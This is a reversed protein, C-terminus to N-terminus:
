VKFQKILIELQAALDALSRSSDQIQSSGKGVQSSKQHIDGIDRTIDAVVVSSQAVNSNVESIGQSAQSINNAIESTAASQEEVATAIGNIVSNIEAIVESIKEINIVTTATTRQMDNIQNKIDVTAAATQKALEKIENAVVAFGKGAEGARAAEITANLALLNTQESIETITETVKSVKKATEGLAAIEESTQTSQNVARESIARAKEANQAIENITATMEETASAVTNVNSSSQEMAASVSQFNATMEEAAASVSSSRDSTDNAAGSLQQSVSSLDKSSETLKVVGTVVNNIMSGVQLVMKNLSEAMMGIEDKRDSDFKVRFDGQSLTEILASSKKLPVTISRVIYISLLVSLVVATILLGSVVRLVWNATNGAEQGADNALKTQFAVLEDLTDFYVSQIKRYEGMLIEKAKVNENKGVLELMADLNKGFVPRIESIIKKVLASGVDNQANKSLEELIGGATKRADAIRKKEVERSQQNEDLLLNRTARAVINIQDKIANAHKVKTMREQVLVELEDHINNVSSISYLGVIFLFALAVASNIALRTGIKLNNMEKRRNIREVKLRMMLPLDRGTM